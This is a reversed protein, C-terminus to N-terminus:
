SVGEDLQFNVPSKVKKRSFKGEHIRKPMLHPVLLSEVFVYESQVSALSRRERADPIKPVLCGWLVKLYSLRRVFKREV